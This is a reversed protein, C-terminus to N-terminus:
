VVEGMCPIWLHRSAEVGRRRSADLSSGLMIVHTGYKKELDDVFNFIEAKKGNENVEGFLDKQSYESTTLGSLTVGTARYEIDQEYLHNFSARIAGLVITPDNTPSTLTVEARKFRFSQTKLFLYIKKSKLKQQRVKSCADEVNKSLESIIIKKNQTKQFSRTKQISVQADEPGSHVKYVSIGRLEYWREIEPKSLNETVWNLPKNILDLATNINLRQLHASTSPGIGWVKGVQLDKLFDRTDKDQIVTFGDPKNWKSAIKAIVKTPGLGVSFTIGLERKLDNKICRATEIPNTLLSLDAFCEDISYEEVLSTYRRVINFTRQAFMDYTDYNADVIIAQPYLKKIQYIPMGRSIGLNKAEQTMATAIGRERGTVVPKGRLKHNLAIECAAFFGDGDLHLIWIEKGKM